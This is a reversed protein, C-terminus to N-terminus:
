IETARYIKGQADELLVREETRSVVRFFEVDKSVVPMTFKPKPTPPAPMPSTNEVEPAPAERVVESKPASRYIWCQGTVVTEINFDKGRLYSLCARIQSENCDTAKMLEPLTVQLGRKENLYALVPGTVTNLGRPMIVVKPLLDATNNKLWAAKRHASRNHRSAKKRGHTKGM